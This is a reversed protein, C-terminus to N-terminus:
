VPYVGLYGPNIWECMLGFKDLVEGIAPNVGFEWGDQQVYYDAWKYSEADEGGIFFNGLKDNDENTFVPVGMIKLVNYADIYPHKM